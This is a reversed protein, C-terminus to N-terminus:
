EARLTVTPDVRAARAAPIYSALAAVGLLLVPVVTFTLPDIPDVNFLFTKLLRCGAAAAPLGVGVGLLAPRLGDRLILRRVDSGSAGLALRVGIEGRRRSVGYSLVGYLGAAALLMALSAFAGFLLMQFRRDATSEGVLEEMTRAQDVVVDPDVRAVEARAASVVSQPAVSTHLVAHVKSYLVANMRRYFTPRPPQHIQALVDGVVGVIEYRPAKENRENPDFRIRRGIPDEGPFYTTALSESIVIASSGEDPDHESLGRGRLLPIGAAEFFGPTINRALADALIRTAPRGDIYFGNDSCSGTVPACSTLGAARVGPIAALAPPLARYFARYQEERKEVM